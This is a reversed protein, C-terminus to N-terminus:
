SCMGHPPNIGLLDGARLYLQMKIDNPDSPRVNPGAIVPAARATERIALMKRRCTAQRGKSIEVDWHSCAVRGIAEDIWEDPYDQIM